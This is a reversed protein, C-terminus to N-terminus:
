SNILKDNVFICNIFIDNNLGYKNKESKYFVAHSIFKNDAKMFENEEISDNFDKLEDLSLFENKLLKQLTPTFIDLYEFGTKVNKNDVFKKCAQLGKPKYITEFDEALGKKFDEIIGQNTPKIVFENLLAYAFSIPNALYGTPIENFDDQFFVKALDFIDWIETLETSAKLVNNKLGINTFYDIQSIGKTTVLKGNNVYKNKFGFNSAKVLKIEKGENTYINYNYIAKKRQYVERTNTVVKGGKLIRAGLFYRYNELKKGINEVMQKKIENTLFDGISFVITEGQETLIEPLNYNEFAPILFLHRKSYGVNLEDSIVKKQFKDSYAMWELEIEVGTDKVIMEAWDENLYLSVVAKDKKIYVTKNVEQYLAKKNKDVTLFKTDPKFFYGDNEQLQLIIKTNEKLGSSRLHFYVIEGLNANVIKVKGEKDKSWYGNLSVKYLGTINETDDNFLANKKNFFSILNKASLNSRLQQIDDDNLLWLKNEMENKDRLHSLKLLTDGLNIKAVTTNNQKCFFVAIEDHGIELKYYKDSLEDIIKTTYITVSIEKKKHYLTEKKLFPRNFLNAHDFVEFSHIRDVYGDSFFARGMDYTSYSNLNKSFPYDKSTFPSSKNSPQLADNSINSNNLSPSQSQDNKIELYTKDTNM